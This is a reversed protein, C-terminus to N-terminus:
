NYGLDSLVDDIDRIIRNKQIPNKAPDFGLLQFWVKFAKKFEYPNDIRSLLDKNLSREMSVVDAPKPANENLEPNMKKMLDIIRKDM